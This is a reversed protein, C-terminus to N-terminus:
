LKEHGSSLTQAPSLSSTFGCCGATSLTRLNTFYYISVLRIPHLTMIILSLTTCPCLFKYNRMVPLTWAWIHCTPNTIALRKWPSQGAKIHYINNYDFNIIQNLGLFTLSSLIMYISWFVHFTQETCHSEDMHSNYISITIICNLWVHIKIKCTVM